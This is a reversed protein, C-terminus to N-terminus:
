ACGPCGDYLAPAGGSPGEAGSAKRMLVCERLWLGVGAGRAGRARARGAEVKSAGSKHGWLM